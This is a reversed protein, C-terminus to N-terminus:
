EHLFVLHRRPKVIREDVRREFTIEGSIEQIGGGHSRRAWRRRGSRQRRNRGRGRPAGVLTELVQRPQTPRTASLEPPFRPRPPPAILSVSAAPADVPPLSIVAVHSNVTVDEGPEPAQLVLPPDLTEEAQMELAAEMQWPLDRWFEPM